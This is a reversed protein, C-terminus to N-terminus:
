HSALPCLRYSAMARLNVEPTGAPIECGAAVIYRSGAARHCDALASEIAEPTGDRMVRVPDLNGALVPAYCRTFADYFEDPNTLRTLDIQDSFAPLDDYVVTFEDVELRYDVIVKDPQLRVVVTRDHARRPVPHASAPSARLASILILILVSLRSAPHAVPLYVRNM